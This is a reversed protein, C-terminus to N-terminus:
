SEMCLKKMEERRMAPIIIKITTGFNPKSQIKLDYDNGFILKIRQCVNKIGLNNIKEDDVPDDMEQIINEVIKEKIGVGNDYVSIEINNGINKGEIKVLCNNEKDNFGHMISNEVIPQLLLKPIGMDLIEESIDIIVDIRDSFRLRQLELYTSIYDIEDEITVIKEKTKVNWRFLNGLLSLMNSIEMNKDHEARMRICELTNYLFHPNIQSQLAVLEAGKRRVEAYYVRKIYINLKHCMENFAIGLQDIEDNGKVPFEINLKGTEVGRMFKILAKIRLNFLNFILITCIITLILSILLISSMKMILENLESWMINKPIINLVEMGSLGVKVSNTIYAENIEGENFHVNNIQLDKYNQGVIDENSSYLIQGDRNKLIFEGKTNGEFEKYSREFAEIPVNMIYVGVIYKQPFLSPNYIKGIFSVMKDNINNSYRSTDDFVIQMDEDSAILRKIISDQIFKYSPMITRSKLPSDSYVVNNKTILIVDTIDKDSICIGRMFDNIVNVTKLDFAQDPFKELNSFIEGINRESHMLNSLNYLRLYEEEAYLEIKKVVERDILVEKQQLISSFKSIIIHATISISIIVIVSYGITMKLFFSMNLFKEYIKELM